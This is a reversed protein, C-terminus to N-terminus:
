RHVLPTTPLGVTALITPYSVQAKADCARGGSASQVSVRLGYTSNEVRTVSAPLVLCKSLGSLCAHCAASGGPPPGASRPHDWRSRPPAGRHRAQARLDAHRACRRRVRMRLDLQAAACLAQRGERDPGGARAHAGHDARDARRGVGAAAARCHTTVSLAVDCCSRLENSHAPRGDGPVHAPFLHPMLVPRCSPRASTCMRQWAIQVLAIGSLALPHPPLVLLSALAAEACERCVVRGRACRWQVAATPTERRCGWGACSTEMADCFLALVRCPGVQDKIHRLMPLVFALTKGSGTKAIGICDRGSMIVPLAQAQIPLPKDFGAKRLIDLVRTALGCQNWSKVPKPIDKGRVQTCCARPLLM